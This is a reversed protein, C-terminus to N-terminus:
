IICTNKFFKNLKNTPVDQTAPSMLTGNPYDKHIM